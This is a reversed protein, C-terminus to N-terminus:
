AQWIWIDSVYAARAAATTGNLLSLALFGQATGEGTPIDAATTTKGLSTLPFSRGYFWEISVAPILRFAITYTLDATLAFSGTSALATGYSEGVLTLNDLRFGIGKAGLAGETLAQKLQVRGTTQADGNATRFVQAFFWLERDWNIYSASTAGRSLAYSADGRAMSQSSATAGTILQIEAPRQVTSGSGALVEAWGANTPLYKTYGRNLLQALYLVGAKGWLEIAPEVGSAELSPKFPM